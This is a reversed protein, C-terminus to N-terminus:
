RPVVDCRWWVGAGKVLVVKCWATSEGCSRVKRLHEYFKGIMRIVVKEVRMFCVWRKAVVQVGVREAVGVEAGHVGGGDFVRDERVLVSSQEGDKFHEAFTHALDLLHGLHEAFTHTLELLHGLVPQAPLPLLFPFM